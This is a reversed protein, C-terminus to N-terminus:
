SRHLYHSRRSASGRSTLTADTSARRMHSRLGARREMYSAAAPVTIYSQMHGIVASIHGNAAIRQAALRGDDVSQHDDIREIRFPRGALGGAANIEEIALGMGEDYLMNSQAAWPWAAALVVTDAPGGAPTSRGAQGGPACASLLVSLLVLHGSCPVRHHREIHQRM